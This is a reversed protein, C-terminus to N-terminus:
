TVFCTQTYTSAGGRKRTDLNSRIMQGWWVNESTADGEKRSRGYSRM